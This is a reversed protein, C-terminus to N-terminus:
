CFVAATFFGSHWCIGGVRFFRYVQDVSAFRDGCTLNVPAGDQRQVVIEGGQVRNKIFAAGRTEEEDLWGVMKYNKMIATGGLKVEDKGAQIKPILACGEPKLDVLIDALNLDLYRSSKTKEQTLINQIYRGVFIEQKPKVALVDTAQGETVLLRITRNLEPERELWDFIEKFRERAVNEGLIIFRTFPFYLPRGTRLDARRISNLINVGTSKLIWNPLEDGGPSGESGGQGMKRPVALEFTSLCRDNETDNNRELKSLSNRTPEDLTDLGMSMVMSRNRLDRADWCGGAALFVLALTIILLKQKM